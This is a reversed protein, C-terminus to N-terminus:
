TLWGLTQFHTMFVSTDLAFTGDNVALDLSFRTAPISSNVQGGRKYYRSTPITLLGSAVTAPTAEVRGWPNHLVIYCKGASYMLGLVSYAHHAVITEDSYSVGMGQPAEAQTNYTWAVMPVKTKSATIKSCDANVPDFWSFIKGLMTKWDYGCEATRVSQPKYLSDVGKAIYQLATLANGDPDRSLDPEGKEYGPLKKWVGYARELLSVWTENQTTSRAFVPLGARLPLRKDITVTDKKNTDLNWFGYTYTPGAQYPLLTPSVWALSIIASILYCDPSCGQVPDLCSPKSPPPVHYAGTGPASWPVDPLQSCPGPSSSTEKETGSVSTIMARSYIPSGHAPDFLKGYPRRLAKELIEKRDYDEMVAWDYREGMVAEALAYPNRAGMRQREPDEEGTMGPKKLGKRRARVIRGGAKVAPLNKRPKTGKTTKEPM